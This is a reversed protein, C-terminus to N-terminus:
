YYYDLLCLLQFSRGIISKGNCTRISRIINNKGIYINEIIGIKWKECNQEAGRITVVDKISIKM